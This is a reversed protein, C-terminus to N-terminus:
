GETERLLALSWLVAFVTEALADMLYVPPIRKKAVYAIDIGALGSASGIALMPVEINQKRRLGASILVSGIVSVLVGVTKVLWFDAKPGTVKQFSSASIFPWLGSVLYFIGQTISLISKFPINNM